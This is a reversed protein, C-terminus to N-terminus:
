RIKEHTGVVDDVQTPPIMDCEWTVLNRPLKIRKAEGKKGDLYYNSAIYDDMIACFAAKIHNKKVNISNDNSYDILRNISDKIDDTEINARILRMYISKLEDKYDVLHPFDIPENHKLYFLFVTKPLEGMKVEQNNATLIIRFDKTIRLPSIEDEGYALTALIYKEIASRRYKKAIQEFLEIEKREEESTLDNKFQEVKDQGIFHFKIPQKSFSYMDSDIEKLITSLDNTKDYGSDPTLTIGRFQSEAGEYDSQFCSPHYYLLSPKIQKKNNLNVMWELILDSKFIAISKFDESAFPAYYHMSESEALEKGLYPLYCFKYGWSDFKQTIHKYNEQIYSNVKEDYEGEVYIIQKCDQEFPLKKLGLLYKM